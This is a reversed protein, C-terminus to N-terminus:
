GQQNNEKGQHCPFSDPLVFLQQFGDVPKALGNGFDGFEDEGRGRNGQESFGRQGSVHPFSDPRIQFPFSSLPPKGM